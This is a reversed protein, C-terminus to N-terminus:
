NAAFNRLSFQYTGQWCRYTYRQYYNKEWNKESILKTLIIRKGGVFTKCWRMFFLATEPLSVTDMKKKGESDCHSGSENLITSSQHNLLIISFGSESCIYVHVSESSPSLHFRLLEAKKSFSNCSCLIIMM